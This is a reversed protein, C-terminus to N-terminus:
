NTELDDDEIQSEIKILLMSIMVFVVTQVVAVFVTFYLTAFPILIFGFININPLFFFVVNSLNNTSSFIMELILAGVIVNAFLRVSLSIIPTPLLLINIPIFIKFPSTYRQLYKWKKRIIALSHILLIFFM